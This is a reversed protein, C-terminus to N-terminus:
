MRAATERGEGRRTDGGVEGGETWEGEMESLAPRGCTAVFECLLVLCKGM